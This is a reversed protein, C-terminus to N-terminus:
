GIRKFLEHFRMSGNALWPVREAVVERLRSNRYLATLTQCFASIGNIHRSRESDTPVAVSNFQVQTSKHVFVNLFYLLIATRSFLFLGYPEIPCTVLGGGRGVFEDLSM